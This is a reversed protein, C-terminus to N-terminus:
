MEGIMLNIISMIDTITVQNDHNLDAFQPTFPAVAYGLIYNVALMVDTINVFGDSNVDGRKRPKVEISFESSKLAITEGHECLITADSLIGVVTGAAVDPGIYFPLELVVVENEKLESGGALAWNLQYAGNGLSTVSVEPALGEYFTPVSFMVEKEDAILQMGQPLTLVSQFHRIATESSLLHLTMSSVADQFCEESTAILYETVNIISQFQNWIKHRKYANDYHAPVMLTRRKPISSFTNAAIDPPTIPYATASSLLLCNAFANEGISKVRHPLTLQQLMLCGNFADDMITELAVSMQIDSLKEAHYFAAPCITAVTPPVVFAGEKGAPYNILQTIKHNYLVGDISKYYNNDSDVDISLLNTCGSFPTMGIETITAPLSIRYLSTCNAFASNGIKSLQQPIEVNKLKKCGEFAEDGISSCAEPIIIEQLNACGQFAKSEIGMVCSPLTVSTLKECGSFAGSMILSLTPPAVYDGSKAEACAFVTTLAKDYLVDDITTYVPNDAAVVITTLMPCGVFPQLGISVVTKPLSVSTLRPSNRFVGQLVSTVTYTNGDVSITEPIVIDGEYHEDDFVISIYDDGSGISSNTVAVTSDSTIYYLIKGSKISEAWLHVSSLFFIISLIKRMSLHTRQCIYM